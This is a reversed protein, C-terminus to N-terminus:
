IVVARETPTGYGLMRQGAREQAEFRRKQTEFLYVFQTIAIVIDNPLHDPYGLMEKFFEDRWDEMKHREFYDTDPIWFRKDQFPPTVADVFELEQRSPPGDRAGFPPVATIGGYFNPDVRLEQVVATGTSRDEVFTHALRFRTATDKVAKRVDAYEIKDRVIQLLYYDWGKTVAIVAGVTWSRGTVKGATDWTSYVGHIDERSPAFKFRNDFWDRKFVIGAYPTIENQMQLAFSLPEIKRDAVLEESTFRGPWFSVDNEDLAKIYIQHWNREMAWDAPDGEYWRTCPM